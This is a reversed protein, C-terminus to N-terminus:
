CYVFLYPWPFDGTTLQVVWPPFRPPDARKGPNSLDWLWPKNGRAGVVARYDVIAAEPAVWPNNGDVYPLRKLLEVVENTKQLGRAAIAASTIEPWGGDPSRHVASPEIHPLSEYLSVLAAVITDRSYTSPATLRPDPPLQNPDPTSSM